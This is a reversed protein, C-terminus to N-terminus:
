YDKVEASASIFSKTVSDFFRGAGERLIRVGLGRRARANAIWARKIVIPSRFKWGGDSLRKSSLESSPLLKEHVWDAM